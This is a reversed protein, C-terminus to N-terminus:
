RLSLIKLSGESLRDGVNIGARSFWLSPVELAYRLSRESAVTELSFPVLEYIERITGTSDIFAISLAHPTNKMWFYMRRDAEYAFVMGTGDPITKRGMYGKEQEADTRAIEAKLPVAKGDATLIELRASELRPSPSCSSFAASALFGALVPLLLRFRSSM